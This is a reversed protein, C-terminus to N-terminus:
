CDTPKGNADITHICNGFHKAPNCPCKAFQATAAQIIQKGNQTIKMQVEINADLISYKEQILQQCNALMFNHLLLQVDNTTLQSDKVTM